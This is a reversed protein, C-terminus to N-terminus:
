IRCFSAIVSIYIAGGSRPVHARTNPIITLPVNYCKTDATQVGRTMCRTVYHTTGQREVVTPQLVGFAHLADEQVQMRATVSAMGYWDRAVHVRRCRVPIDGLLTGSLLSIM